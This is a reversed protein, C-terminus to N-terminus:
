WEDGERGLFTIWIFIYNGCSVGYMYVILLGGKVIVNTCVENSDKKFTEGLEPQLIVVVDIM